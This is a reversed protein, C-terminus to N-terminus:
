TVALSSAGLTYIQPGNNGATNDWIICNTVTPSSSNNVLAGGNNTAENESFTCNIISPSASNANFIAGGNDANNGTFLCNSITPSSNTIYLAGGSGTVTNGPLICNTIISSTHHNTGDERFYIGGGDSANGNTITFGDIIADHYRIYFCQYTNDGDVTTVNNVWDRDDWGPDATDPFGGYISVDQLMYIPATLTYTGAKVWIEDGEDAVSIAAQISTYATNWSLGDTGDGDLAVYWDATQANSLSVTIFSLILFGLLFAKKMIADTLLLNIFFRLAQIGRDM